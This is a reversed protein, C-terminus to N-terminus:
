VTILIIDEKKKDPLQAKGTKSKQRLIRWYRKM